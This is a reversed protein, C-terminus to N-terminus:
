CWRSCATTRASSRYDGAEVAVGRRATGVGPDVVVLFITGDPFYRYVAALELAGALIDHPPVDHTIDVFTAEPCIGLAVGKM